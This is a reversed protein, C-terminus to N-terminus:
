VATKEITTQTTEQLLPCLNRLYEAEPCKIVISLFLVEQFSIEM